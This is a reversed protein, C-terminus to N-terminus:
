HAPRAPAYRAGIPLLAAAVIAGILVGQVAPPIRTDNNM